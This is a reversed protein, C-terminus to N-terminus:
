IRLTSSCQSPSTDLHPAPTSQTVSVAILPVVDVIPVAVTVRPGPLVASESASAPSQVCCTPVATGPAPRTHCCSHCQVNRALYGLCHLAPATTFAVLMMVVAIEFRAKGCMCTLM